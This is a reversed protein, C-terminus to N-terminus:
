ASRCMRLYPMDTPGALPPPGIAVNSLCSSSRKTPLEHGDTALSSCEAIPAAARTRGTGGALASTRPTRQCTRAPIRRRRQRPCSRDPAPWARSRTTGPGARSSLCGPAATCPGARRCCGRRLPWRPQDDIGLGVEAVRRRRGACMSLQSFLSAASRAPSGFRIASRAPISASGPGATATRGCRPEADAM